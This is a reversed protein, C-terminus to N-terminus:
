KAQEFRIHPAHRLLAGCLKEMDDKGMSLLNKGFMKQASKTGGIVESPKVKNGEADTM